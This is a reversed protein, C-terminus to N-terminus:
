RAAQRAFGRASLSRSRASTKVSASLSTSSAKTTLLGFGAAVPALALGIGTMGSRISGAGSRIGEFSARLRTAAAQAVGMDRVARRGEFSLEAGFGWKRLLSM